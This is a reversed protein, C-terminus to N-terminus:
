LNTFDLDDELLLLFTSVATISSYSAPVYMQFAPVAETLETYSEVLYLWVSSVVLLNVLFFIVLVAVM